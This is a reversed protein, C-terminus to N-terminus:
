REKSLGEIKYVYSLLGLEYGQVNWIIYIKVM